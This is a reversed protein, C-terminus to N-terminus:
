PRERGQRFVPACLGWSLRARPGHGTFLTVQLPGPLLPLCGVAEQPPGEHEAEKYRLFPERDWGRCLHPFWSDAWECPLDSPPGRGESGTARHLTKCWCSGKSPRRARGPAGRQWSGIDWGGGPGMDCGGLPRPSNPALPGGTGIGECNRILPVGVGQYNTFIEIPGM